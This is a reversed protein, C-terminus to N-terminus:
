VNFEAAIDGLMARLAVMGEYNEIGLKNGQRWLSQKATLPTMVSVKSLANQLTLQKSVRSLLKTAIRFSKDAITLDADELRRLVAELAEIDERSVGRSSGAQARLGDIIKIVNPAGASLEPYLMSDIARFGKYQTMGIEKGQKWLSKLVKKPTRHTVHSLAEQLEIQQKCRETEQRAIQVEPLSCEGYKDLLFVLMGEVDSLDKPSVGNETKSKGRLREVLQQLGDDSGSSGSGSSTTTEKLAQFYHFVSLLSHILSYHSTIHHRSILNHCIIHQYKVASVCAVGCTFYFLISLYCTCMVIMLDEHIYVHICCLGGVKRQIVQQIVLMGEYNNMGLENGECFLDRLVGIDREERLVAEEIRHQVDLQKGAREMEDAAENLLGIDEDRINECALTVVIAENLPLLEDESLGERSKSASFLHEIHYQLSESLNIVEQSVARTITKRRVPEHIPKPLADPAAPHSDPVPAPPPPPPPPCSPAPPL